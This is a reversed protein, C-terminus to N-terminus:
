YPFIERLHDLVDATEMELRSLILEYQDINRRAKIDNEWVVLLEQLAELGLYGYSSRTKHVIAKLAHWNKNALLQRMQKSNELAESRFINVIRRVSEPKNGLLVELQSLDVASKQVEKKLSIPVMEKLAEYLLIPDIPKKIYGSITLGKMKEFVVREPEASLIFVPIHKNVSDQQRIRTVVFDADQDLHYDLLLLDYRDKTLEKMVQEYSAASKVKHCKAEVLAELVQQSVLNDEGILISEIM